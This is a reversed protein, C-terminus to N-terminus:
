TKLNSKLSSATDPSWSLDDLGPEYNGKGSLVLRKDRRSNPIQPEDINGNRIRIPITRHDDRTVRSNESKVTMASTPM